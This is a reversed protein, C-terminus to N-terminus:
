GQRLLWYDHHSEPSVTSKKITQIMFTWLKHAEDLSIQAPTELMKKILLFNAQQIRRTIDVPNMRDHYITSSLADVFMLKLYSCLLSFFALKLLRM